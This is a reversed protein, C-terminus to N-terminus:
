VSACNLNQPLKPGKNTLGFVLDYAKIFLEDDVFIRCFRMVQEENLQKKSDQSIIAALSMVKDFDAFPFSPDEPDAVRDSFPIKM